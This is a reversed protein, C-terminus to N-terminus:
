ARGRASEALEAQYRAEYETAVPGFADPHACSKASSGLRRQTRYSIYGLDGSKIAAILSESTM